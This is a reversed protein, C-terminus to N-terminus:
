QESEKLTEAIRYVRWASFCVGGKRDGQEIWQNDFSRVEIIRGDILAECLKLKEEKTLDKFYKEGM